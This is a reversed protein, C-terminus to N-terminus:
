SQHISRRDASQHYLNQLYIKEENNDIVIRVYIHRYFADINLHELWISIVAPSGNSLEPAFFGCNWTPTHNTQIKEQTSGYSSRDFKHRSQSLLWVFHSNFQTFTKWPFIHKITHRSYIDALLDVCIRIIQNHQTADIDLNAIWCKSAVMILCPILSDQSNM